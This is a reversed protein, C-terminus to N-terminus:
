LSKLIMVAGSMFVPTHLCRPRLKLIIHSTQSDINSIREEEEPLDWGRLIGRTHKFVGQERAKGNPADTFRIPLNLVLPLLGPIGATCREHYEM